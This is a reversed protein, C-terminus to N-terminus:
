RKAQGLWPNTALPHPLGLCTALTMSHLGEAQSRIFEAVFCRPPDSGVVGSAKSRESCARLNIFNEAVRLVIRGVGGM